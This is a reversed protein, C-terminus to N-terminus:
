LSCKERRRQKEHLRKGRGELLYNESPLGCGKSLEELPIMIVTVPCDSFGVPELIEKPLYYHRGECAARNRPEQEKKTM